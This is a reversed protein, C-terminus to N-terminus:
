KLRKLGLKERQQNLQAFAASENKLFKVLQNTSCQLHSAAAAADWQNFTLVAIAEALLSPFDDHTPNIALKGSRLRSRWLESPSSSLDFNAPPDLALKVRLRFIAVQRNAEQSRRENAEGSKGSIPDHIVVATEVKNRHQGGPGGRRLRQIDCQKLLQEAPWAAPHDIGQPM